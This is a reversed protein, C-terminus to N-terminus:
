ATVQEIGARVELAQAPAPVGLMDCVAEVAVVQYGDGHEVDGQLRM